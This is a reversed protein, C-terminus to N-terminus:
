NSRVEGSTQHDCPNFANGTSLSVRTVDITRTEPWTTGYGIAMLWASNAIECPVVALKNCLIDSAMCM